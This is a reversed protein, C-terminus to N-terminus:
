GTLVRVINDRVPPVARPPVSHGNKKKKKKQMRSEVSHVRATRLPTPPYPASGSDMTTEHEPFFKSFRDSFEISERIGLVARAGVPALNTVTAFTSLTRLRTYLRSRKEFNASERVGNLTRFASVRLVFNAFDDTNFDLSGFKADRDLSDFRLRVFLLGFQARDAM